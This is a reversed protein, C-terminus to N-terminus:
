RNYGLKLLMIAPSLEKIIKANEEEEKILDQYFPTNNNLIDLKLELEEILLYLNHYYKLNNENLKPLNKIKNSINNIKEEIKNEM